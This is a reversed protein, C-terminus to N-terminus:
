KFVVWLGFAHQYRTRAAKLDGAQQLAQADAVAAKAHEQRLDRNLGSMHVQEVDPFFLQKKYELEDLHSAQAHFSQLRFTDIQGTSGVILEGSADIEKQHQYTLKFRNSDGIAFETYRGRYGDANLGSRRGLSPVQNAYGSFRRSDLQGTWGVILEGNQDFEKQERYGYVENAELLEKGFLDDYFQPEEELQRFIGQFDVGEPLPVPVVVRRPPETQQNVRKMESQDVAVFSTYQSM